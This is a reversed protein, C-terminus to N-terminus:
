RPARGIDDTPRTVHIDLTPHVLIVTLLAYLVVPELIAVAHIPLTTRALKFEHALLALFRHM